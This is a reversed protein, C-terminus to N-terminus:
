SKSSGPPLVNLSSSRAETSASIRLIMASFWGNSPEPHRHVLAGLQEGVLGVLDIM